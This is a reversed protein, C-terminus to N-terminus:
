KNILECDTIECAISSKGSNVVHMDFGTSVWNLYCIFPVTQSDTTVNTHASM